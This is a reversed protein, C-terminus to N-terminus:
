LRAISLPTGSLPSRASRSGCSPVTSSVSLSSVITLSMRAISLLLFRIDARSMDSAVHHAIIIPRPSSARRTKRGSMRGGILRFFTM